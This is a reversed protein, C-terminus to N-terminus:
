GITTQRYERLIHKGQSIAIRYKAARTLGSSVEIVFLIGETYDLSRQISMKRYQCRGTNVDEQISMKRYQCRGTNVDEQISM